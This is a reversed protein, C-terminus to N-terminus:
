FRGGFGTVGYGRLLIDTLCVENRVPYYIAHAFCREATTPPLGNFEVTLVASRHTTIMTSTKRRQLRNLVALPALSGISYLVNRSRTVCPCTSFIVTRPSSIRPSVLVVAGPPFFCNWVVPGVGSGSSM